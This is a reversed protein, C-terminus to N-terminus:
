QGFKKEEKTKGPYTIFIHTIKGSKIGLYVGRAWYALTNQIEKEPKGWVKIVSNKDQGILFPCNLLQLGDNNEEILIGQVQNSSNSIDLSLGYTYYDLKIHDKKKGTRGRMAWLKDPPGMIGWITTLKDGCKIAASDVKVGAQPYTKEGYSISVTLLLFLSLLFIISLKKKM